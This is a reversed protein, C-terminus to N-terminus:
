SSRDSERSLVIDHAAGVWFMQLYLPEIYYFDGFLSAFGFGVLGAQAGKTQYYLPRVLQGDLQRPLRFLANRSFLFLYLALGIAGSESLLTFYSSHPVRPQNFILKAIEERIPTDTFRDSYREKETSFNDLGVGAIPHEQWIRFAIKWLVPRAAASADLQEPPSFITAIRNTYSEPFWPSALLIVVALTGLIRIRRKLHLTLLLMGVALGLFAGRSDTYITCLITFFACVFFVFRQKTPLASDLVNAFIFPAMLVLLAGLVNSGGVGWLEELRYNGALGQLVGWFSLLGLSVASVWVYHMLHQAERFIRSFLFCFVFIKAIELTKAFSAESSHEAGFSAIVLWVLLLAFIVVNANQFGSWQTKALYVHRRLLYGIGAAVTTFLHLRGFVPTGWTLNEPRFLMIHVFFLLGYAPNVISYLVSGYYFVSLFLIRM